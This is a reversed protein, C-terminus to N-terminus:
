RLRQYNIIHIHSKPCKRTHIDITQVIM